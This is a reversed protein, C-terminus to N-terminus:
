VRERWSARGIQYHPRGKDKLADLSWIVDDATIPSGDHFRAEPRLNYVAWSLDDAVEVSGAIAGYEASIEDPSSALLTEHVLGLGSAPTGKTSFPNLSDFTGISHRRLLGGKPADPNVHDLHRFDAPYKLTGVLTLGHSVTSGSGAAPSAQGLAVAAAAAAVFRIM